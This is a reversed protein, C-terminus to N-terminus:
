AMHKRYVSSSMLDLKGQIVRRQYFDEGNRSFRALIELEEFVALATELGIEEFGYNKQLFAQVESVPKATNKLIDALGRYVDVLFDRTLIRFTDQKMDKCILQVHEGYWDHVEPEFAVDVM